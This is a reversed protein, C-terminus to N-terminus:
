INNRIQIAEEIWQEINNAVDNYADYSNPNYCKIKSSLQAGGNTFTFQDFPNKGQTCKGYLPSMNSYRPDKLNHIYIGFVGKSDEWAKRIEYKVWPRIATESGVLVIICSKYKMNEDIWKEVGGPTKRATEWDNASVPKNGEIVGINRVQQTRMVDNDFHFSYFVQRKAM